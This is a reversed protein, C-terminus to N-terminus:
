AVNGFLCPVNGNVGHLESVPVGPIEKYLTIIGRFIRPFKRPVGVGNFRQYQKASIIEVNLTRWAWSYSRPCWAGCWV